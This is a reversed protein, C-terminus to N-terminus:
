FTFKCTNLLVKNGSKFRRASRQRGVRRKQKPVAAATPITTTQSFQPRMQGPGSGSVFNNILEHSMMSMSMTAGHEM